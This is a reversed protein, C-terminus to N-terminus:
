ASHLIVLVDGDQIIYEKGETRILGKGRAEGWGDAELLVSWQIVEARIFKQEFDTHIVGAAQPATVGRAVTWARTEDPGTTFFTILGLTEYATRILTPLASEGLGLEEREDVSMGASELEARADMAVWAYGLGDVYTKLEDSVFGNHTNVLFIAPKATLLQLTRMARRTAPDDLLGNDRAYEYIHTGENLANQWTELIASEKQADKDGGRAEKAASVLRKEITELDKLALESRIIESDRIPDVSNEVHQIDAAEFARVVYVIADVERIHSLFQNGLGEGDHAGKVLGAIDAFEIITPVIKKSASLEALKQLREDPVEVVGINPDITAFPYNAIEVKNRTLAAFLTSKGVNPLGVIGLSLSM